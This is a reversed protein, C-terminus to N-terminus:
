DVFTMAAAGVILSGIALVQMGLSKEWLTPDMVFDAALMEVTAAYILMGASIASM